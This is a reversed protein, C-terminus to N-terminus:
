LETGAPGGGPKRARIVVDASGTPLPIAEIEGKLFEVNALGAARANRRALALMEDTMDLGYVKGASGVRRASLIVDIRGGSGQDLVVEGEELAAVALPNGCGLSALVAAEPLHGLERDSYDGPGSCANGGVRCACSSGGCCGEEAGEAAIIALEAYRTRVAEKTAETELM